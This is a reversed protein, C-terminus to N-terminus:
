QVPSNNRRSKVLPNLVHDLFSVSNNSANPLLLESESLIAMFENYFEKVCHLLSKDQIGLIVDSSPSFCYSLIPPLNAALQLIAGGQFFNDSM